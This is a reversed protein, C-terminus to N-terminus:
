IVGFVKKLGSLQRMADKIINELNNIQYHLLNNGKNQPIMVNNISHTNIISPFNTKLLPNRFLNNSLSDMAQKQISIHCEEEKKIHLNKYLQAINALTKQKELDLIKNVKLLEQLTKLKQNKELNEKSERMINKLSVDEEEMKTSDITSMSKFSMLDNYRQEYKKKLYTYYRNKVMNATKNMLNLSIEKWNKGMKAIMMLIIQDEEATFNNKRGFNVTEEHLSEKIMKATINPNDLIIKDGSLRDAVHFVLKKLLHNDQPKNLKDMLFKQLTEKNSLNTVTESNEIFSTHIQEPISRPQQNQSPNQLRETIKLLKKKLKQIKTFNKKPKSPETTKPLSKPM